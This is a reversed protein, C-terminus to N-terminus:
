TAPVLIRVGQLYNEGNLKFPAFYVVGPEHVFSHLGVTRRVKELLNRGSAALTRTHLMRIANAITDPLLDDADFTIGAAALRARVERAQEAHRRKRAAIM